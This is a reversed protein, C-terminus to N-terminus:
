EVPTCDSVARLPAGFDSSLLSGRARECTTTDRWCQVPPGANSPGEFTFCFALAVAPCDSVPATGNALMAGPRTECAREVADIRLTSAFWGHGAPM